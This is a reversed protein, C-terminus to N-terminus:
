IKLAVAGTTQRSEIRAHAAAAEGLPYTEIVPFLLGNQIKAFLQHSLRQLYSRDEIYDFIVPASVTLSRKMLLKLDLPISRGDRDGVVACHGHRTLCGLAAELGEIGSSLIWYDVGRGNTLRRIYAALRDNDSDAVVLPHDCGHDRSFKAKDVSSVTGIVTMDMSRAWQALLHGLGGAVSQILVTAGPLAQFIRGLLLGATM